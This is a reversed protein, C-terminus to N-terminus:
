CRRGKRAAPTRAFHGSDLSVRLNRSSFVGFCRSEQSSQFSRARARNDSPSRDPKLIAALVANSIL